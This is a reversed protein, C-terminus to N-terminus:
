VKKKKAKSFQESISLIHDSIAKKFLSLEGNKLAEYIKIHENVHDAKFKADVNWRDLFSLYIDLISALLTEFISNKASRALLMHFSVVGESMESGEKELRKTTLINQHLIEMEEDTIREMAFEAVSLELTMRAETLEQIDVNGLMIFDTFSRKVVKSGIAKIFAGGRSGQKITIFGSDELVRLAERVAMRGTNFQIALEREPPLKDNPKYVGSYVLEKIQDAIVVFTRKKELPKFKGPNIKNPSM